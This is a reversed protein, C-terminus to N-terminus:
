EKISEIVKLYSEKLESKEEDTLERNTYDYSSVLEEQMSVVEGDNVAVFTPSYLRTEGTDYAYM